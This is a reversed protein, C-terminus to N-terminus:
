RQLWARAEAVDGAGLEHGANQWSLEVQAGARRLLDALREPQGAAVM